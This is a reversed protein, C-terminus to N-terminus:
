KEVLLRLTKSSENTQLRALYFGRGLKSGEVEIRHQEGARATGQKQYVMRGMKSEYLTLTYPGDAKLAFRITAKDLIPNPYALLEEQVENIAPALAMRAGAGNGAPSSGAVDSALVGVTQTEDSALVVVDSNYTYHTSTAYNNLGSILTLEPSFSINSIPTEKYLINGGYTDASYGVKVKGLAENVLV